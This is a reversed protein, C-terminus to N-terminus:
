PLEITYQSATGLGDNAGCPTVGWDSNFIITKGDKTITAMPIGWYGCQTSRHHTLRVMSGDLWLLTLENELPQQGAATIRTSSLVCPGGAPGQCSVHSFAGWNTMTVEKKTGDYFYAIIAPYNNNYASYTFPMLLFERGDAAVGQDSHHHDANLTRVHVGTQIDFLQFGNCAAPSGVFQVVLYNGLPSVSAWDVTSGAACAFDSHPRVAGLQGNIMDLAFLVMVGDNRTVAGGIWKGDRSPQDFSQNGLVRIYQAPFTFMTQVARTAVTTLQLRVTTDANDDYHIMVGPMTPHWRPANWKSTAAVGMILENTPYRRIVYGGETYLAYTKSADLAQLQSYLHATGPGTLRKIPTGFDPDIVTQGVAPIALPTENISAGPPLMGTRPAYPPEYYGFGLGTDPIGAVSADPVATADRPAADRPAADLRPTADPWIGSDRPAADAAVAAADPWLGADVPAPVAAADAATVPAAVLAFDLTWGGGDAPTAMATGQVAYTPAGSSVLAWGGAGLSAALAAATIMKVNTNM